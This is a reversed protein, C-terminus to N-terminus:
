GRPRVISGPPVGAAKHISRYGAALADRDPGAPGCVIHRRHRDLAYRAAARWPADDTLPGEVCFVGRDEDAVILFFQRPPPNDSM